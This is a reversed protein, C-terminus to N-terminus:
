DTFNQIGTKVDPYVTFVKALGCLSFTDGVEPIFEGALRLDGDRSRLTNLLSVFVGLGTSDIAKIGSVDILIKRHGEELVLERVKSKLDLHTRVDLRGYVNVAAVGNQEQIKIYMGM